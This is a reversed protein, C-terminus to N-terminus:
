SEREELAVPGEPGLLPQLPCGDCRSHAPRCHKRAVIALGDRIVKLDNVVESASELLARAEDYDATTDLWGHRLAVRYAGREVPLTPRTLGELLLRDAAAPGVGRIARLDERLRETPLDTLGEFDGGCTAMLWAALDRLGKAEVITLRRGAGEFAEQISRPNAQALDETTTLGADCLAQWDRDDTRDLFALVLRRLSPSSAEVVQSLPRLATLLAETQEGFRPM